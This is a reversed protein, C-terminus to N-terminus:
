IQRGCEMPNIKNLCIHQNLNMQMIQAALDRYKNISHKSYYSNWVFNQKKNQLFQVFIDLIPIQPNIEEIWLFQGQENIELFIYEGDPTVIFDFAGFILGMKQMFNCLKLKLLAPVAYHEIPLDNGQVARWDISTDMRSQSDIKVATVYSGFVNIRLEYKKQILKQYIGPTFQLVADDPLLNQNLKATYSIKVQQDEFWFYSCLPKYVVEENEHFRCFSRIEEPDNSCLTPPISLGCEKAIKLQLLKAHSRKAASPSNIWWAKPSFHYTLSDFFYDNEQKIFVYDDQHVSQQPIFPRRPRRWWVVDYQRGQFCYQESVHKWNEAESSIYLSNKQLTPQDATMLCYVSHGQSELALKVLIAQMDDPETVILYHM